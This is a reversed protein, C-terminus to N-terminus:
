TLNDEFGGSLSIRSIAEAGVARIQVTLSIRANSQGQGSMVNLDADHFACWQFGQPRRYLVVSLDRIGHITTLQLKKDFFKSSSPM